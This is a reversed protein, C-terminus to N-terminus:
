KIIVKKGNIINLGKQVHEIRQGALNYIIASVGSNVNRISNETAKTVKVEDLFFRKSPVFSISIQGNGTFNISYETWEGKAMTYESEGIPETELLKKAFVKLTNGDGEADWCAAKFTLVGEGDLTFSPTTASGSISSTGFRGCQNAGFGKEVNWGENDTELDASAINGNWLDDNGGTGQCLNFSEYFVPRDPDPDEGPDVSEEDGCRFSITGDGNKTIGFVPKNMLKSGDTNMNYVTAKPTSENTLSDNEGYPYLQNQFNSKKTSSPFLGSAPILTMRQHNRVSNPTNNEWAEASYDVHLILLGAIGTYTDVYSFWRNGDRNELLYYENNNGDNYIIYADPEDGLPQLADVKMGPNLEKPEIWGAVWREYSSYGAPVEGNYKPGNYSGGDMVDWCDMGWGGGSTTDYFDPYGLCHSFEHCATGIGNMTTGSVGALECSVAYTDILVDDIIIAGEGDGYRGAESLEYEHPWITNKPAGANEGFGAYLLFVQDVEGDGDWDYDAYNIDYNADALRCAEIVMEAPHQDDGYRDNQGYYSMNGSVTVPGVVDFELDFQGYSQDMFYDHLSGIHHNNSYGEKNFMDDFESQTSTPVMTKDAFNVLIVLGKKKGTYASVDMSKRAKSMRKQRKDNRSTRKKMGAESMKKAEDISMRVATGDDEVMLRQGDATQWWHAYEDGKLTATVQTGDSLTFIRKVKRAPVALLVISVILFLYLLIHRKM